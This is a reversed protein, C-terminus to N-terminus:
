KITVTLIQAVGDIAIGHNTGSFGPQINTTYNQVTVAYSVGGHSPNNLAAKVLNDRGLDYGNPSITHHQSLNEEESVALFLAGTSQQPFVRFHNGGVLSELCTGIVPLGGVKERLEITQNVSGRGDGLNASQPGGSHIGLCEKSFALARAFNLFGDDSVTDLVKPSSLGSIVVNLPEGSKGDGSDLWSGGGPVPDIFGDGSSRRPPALGFTTHAFLLAVLAFRAM